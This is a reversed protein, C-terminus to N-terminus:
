WRRTPTPGSSRTPTPPAPRTPLSSGASCSSTSRTASAPTPRCSACTRLIGAPGLPPLPLREGNREFELRANTACADPRRAVDVIVSHDIVLDVPIQPNVSGPDGGLSDVADRLAALDVVCPVGTFDQLLIRAPSFAIEREVTEGKAFPALAAIDDASVEQGNEHRLLNELLVKLCYPLREVGLEGPLADLREIAYDTGDVAIRGFTGFSNLGM